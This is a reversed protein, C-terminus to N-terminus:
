YQYTIHISFQWKVNANEYKMQYIVALKVCTIICHGQFAINTDNIAMLSTDTMHQYANLWYAATM